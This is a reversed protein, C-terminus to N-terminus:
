ILLSTYILWNRLFFEYITNRLNKKMSIQVFNASARIKQNNKFVTRVTKKLFLSVMFKVSFKASKENSEKSNSKKLKLLDIKNQITLHKWMKWTWNDKQIRFNLIILWNQSYDLIKKWAWANKKGFITIETQMDGFTGIDGFIGLYWPIKLWFSKPSIALGTIIKCGSVLYIGSYWFLSESQNTLQIELYFYRLFFVFIEM